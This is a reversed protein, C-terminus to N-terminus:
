QAGEPRLAVSRDTYFSVPAEEPLPRALVRAREGAIGPELHACETYGASRAHAVAAAFDAGVEEPRHADSGFALPVGSRYLLGLLDPGPYMEAVPKRLGATNIEVAMGTRAVREVLAQMAAQPPEPPRHGFKKVLDLHGLITFAGSEAAEGVREFYRLYVDLVDRGAWEAANRPDDFAWGDLFHVSGIVYDFPYSELLARVGEFTEPEYDAEIGLLVYGPYAHRLELVETVYDDLDSAAMTLETDRRGVLPLHDCVGIGALGRARAAEVYEAATGVAHGCRYTHTHYDPPLLVTDEDRV